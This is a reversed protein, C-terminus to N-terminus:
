EGMRELTMLLLDVGLMYVDKAQIQLEIIDTRIQCLSDTFSLWNGDRLLEIKSDLLRKLARIWGQFLEHFKSLGRVRSSHRSTYARYRNHLSDITRGAETIGGQPEWSERVSAIMVSIRDGFKRLVGYAQCALQTQAAVGLLRGPRSYSWATPIGFTTSSLERLQEIVEPASFGPWASSFSQSNVKIRKAIGGCEDRLAISSQPRDYPDKRLLRMVLDNLEPSIGDIFLAPSQPMRSRLARLEDRQAAALLTKEQQSISLRNPDGQSIQQFRFPPAGTLMEYAICGVSYIDTQISFGLVDTITWPMRKLLEPATYLYTGSFGSLSRGSMPVAIGYDAIRAKGQDMTDFLVNAPKLDCHFFGGQHTAIMGQCIEYLIRCADVPPLRKWKLLKEKLSRGAIYEMALYPLRDTGSSSSPDLIEIVTKEPDDEGQLSADGVPPVPDNAGNERPLIDGHSRWGIVWGSEKSIERLAEEEIQFLARSVTGRNAPLPVKFAILEGSLEDIAILVLGAAGEGVSRIVSFTKVESRVIDRCRFQGWTGSPPDPQLYDKFQRQFENEEM